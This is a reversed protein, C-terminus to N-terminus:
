QYWFHLLLFLSVVIVCLAIIAVVVKVITTVTEQKSIGSADSRVSTSCGRFLCITENTSITISDRSLKPYSKPFWFITGFTLKESWLDITAEEEVVVQRSIRIRTTAMGTKDNVTRDRTDPVGEYRRAGDATVMTSFLSTSWVSMENKYDTRHDYFYAIKVGSYATTGNSVNKGFWVYQELERFHTSDTSWFNPYKFLATHVIVDIYHTGANEKSVQVRTVVDDALVDAESTCPKDSYVFTFAPSDIEKLTFCTYDWESKTSVFPVVTICIASIILALM